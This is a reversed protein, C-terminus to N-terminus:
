TLFSTERGTSQGFKKIEIGLENIM